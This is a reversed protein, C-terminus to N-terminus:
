KAALRDIAALFTDETAVDLFVDLVEGDGLLVSLENIVKQYTKRVIPEMIEKPM